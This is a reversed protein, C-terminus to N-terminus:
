PGVCRPSAACEATFDTLWKTFLDPHELLGGHKAPTLTMMRSGPIHDRMYEHAKPTCSVDRDGAVILTPVTIRSLSDTEDYRLMALSYRGISGPRDQIFYSALFDIIERSEGGTFLSHALSNHAEGSLYDLVSVPWLLQSLGITLFCSPEVIMGQLVGCLGAPWSNTKMPNTYTTHALVIGAVRQRLTEPFLRCFTLLIMGGLSHGLLVVPQDGAEAIVANLDGAVREMSWDGDAPPTSEGLGPLDWDIVRHGGNVLRQRIEFWEDCDSGLGHIFLIPVGDPPGYFEAHIKTGDPRQIRRDEGDRPKRGSSSRHSLAKARGGGLSWGIMGLGTLLLGTELNLGFRFSAPQVEEKRAVDATRMDPPSPEQDPADPEIPAGPRKAPGLRRRDFSLALCCAGAALPLVSLLSHLGLKPLHFPMLPM